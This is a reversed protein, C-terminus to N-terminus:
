SKAVNFSYTTVIDNDIKLHLDYKGKRRFTHKFTIIGNEQRIDYIKFQREISGSLQVLTIKEILNTKLAKFKFELTDNKRLSTYLKKPSLPMIKQKFTDGYIIPSSQFGVNKLSDNLFWKKHLPYHNKSFLIPDTLFYGNNYEKVFISGNLMYGSSWTADCLYWKNNLKVANWSHNLSELADVNADSSRGYGDVIECQINAMFCMEKILYAYGTCMTKNHKLLTKFAEKKFDRNWKWYSLSDNKLTTRMKSVKHHQKPDSSINHCVWTYIARFKEVDTELKDTLNHVLLPLNKLSAGKNLSVLNDAKTFDITKFDSIQTTSVNVIFVFLSIRFISM